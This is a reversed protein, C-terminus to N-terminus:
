FDILDFEMLDPMDPQVPSRYWPDALDWLDPHLGERGSPPGCKPCPPYRQLDFFRELEEIDFSKYPYSKQEMPDPSKHARPRSPHPMATGIDEDEEWSTDKDQYLQDEFPVNLQLDDPMYESAAIREFEEELRRAAEREEMDVLARQMLERAYLVDSPVNEYQAQLFENDLEPSRSDSLFSLDPPPTEDAINVVNGGVNAVAIVFDRRAQQLESLKNNVAKVEVADQENLTESIMQISRNAMQSTMKTEIQVPSQPVSVITTRDNNVTGPPIVINSIPGKGIPEAQIVDANLAKALENTKKPLAQQPLKSKM